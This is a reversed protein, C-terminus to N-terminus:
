TVTLEEFFSFQIIYCVKNQFKQPFYQRLVVDYAKVFLIM